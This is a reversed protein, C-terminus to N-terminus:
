REEVVKLAAEKLKKTFEWTSYVEAEYDNESDHVVMRSDKSIDLQFTQLEDDIDVQYEYTAEGNSEYTKTLNYTNEVPDGYEDKRNIYNDIAKITSTSPYTYEDEIIQKLREIEGSISKTLDKMKWDLERMLHQMKITEDTTGEKDIQRQLRHNLLIYREYSKEVAEEIKDLKLDKALNM